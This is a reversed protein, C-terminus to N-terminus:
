SDMGVFELFLAAVRHFGVQFETKGGVEAFVAGACLDQEVEADFADPQQGVIRLLDDADVAVADLDDFPNGDDDRGLFVVAPIQFGFLFFHSM